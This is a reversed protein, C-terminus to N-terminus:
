MQRSIITLLEEQTKGRLLEGIEDLGVALVEVGQPTVRYSITEGEFYYQLTYDDRMRKEAEDTMYPLLRAKERAMLKEVDPHVPLLGAPSPQPPPPWYPEWHNSSENDM